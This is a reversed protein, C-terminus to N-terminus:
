YLESGAQEDGIEARHMEYRMKELRKLEEPTAIKFEAKKTLKEMKSFFTDPNFGGVLKKQNIEWQKEWAAFDALKGVKEPNILLPALADHIGQTAEALDPGQSPASPVHNKPKEAGALRESQGEM